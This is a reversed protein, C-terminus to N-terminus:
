GDKKGMWNDAVQKICQSIPTFTIKGETLLRKPVMGTNQPRKSKFGLEDLSLSHVRHTDIGMDKALKIAMNYRAWTEPSCVNVIGTVKNAQLYIVAKIVDSILIPSFLQDFAAKVIGGSALIRAMEDFLSNDGKELSFVKGLRVVLYNGGAIEGIKSEVVAKQRGYETIPNTPADDAYNGDMGDFVYDSSFFVPKIGKTVLQRILELTGDVNVKRTLANDTECRDIKTIAALILAEKHGTEALKLPEIEPVVLDFLIDSIGGPKRTTGIIDPYRQQYVSLFASGIFGSAGIVATKPLSELFIYNQRNVDKETLLKM